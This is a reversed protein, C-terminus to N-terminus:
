RKCFLASVTQGYRDICAKSGAGVPRTSVRVPYDPICAPSMYGGPLRLAVMGPLTIPIQMLATRSGGLRGTKLRMRESTAPICERTTAALVLDRTCLQCVVWTMCRAAKTLLKASITSVSALIFVLAIRFTWNKLIKKM